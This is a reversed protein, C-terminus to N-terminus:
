PAITLYKVIFTGTGNWDEKFLLEHPLSTEFHKHSRSSVSHNPYKQDELELVWILYNYQSGLNIDDLM